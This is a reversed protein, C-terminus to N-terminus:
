FEIRSDHFIQENFTFFKNVYIDNAIWDEIDIIIIITNLVFLSFKINTRHLDFVTHDISKRTVFTESDDVLLTNSERMWLFM